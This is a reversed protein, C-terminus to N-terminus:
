PFDESDRRAEAAAKPNQADTNGARIRIFFLPLPIEDDSKQDADRRAAPM